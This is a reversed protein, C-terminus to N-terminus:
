IRSKTPRPTVRSPVVPRTVAYMSEPPRVATILSGAGCSPPYKFRLLLPIAPTPTIVAVSNWPSPELIVPIEVSLM